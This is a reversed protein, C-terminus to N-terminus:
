HYPSWRSRCEKGVRREESRVAASASFDENGSMDYNYVTIAHRLMLKFIFTFLNMKGDTPTVPHYLGSNAEDTLKVERYIDRRWVVDEQMKPQVPFAIQSRTTVNASKSASAKAEAQELRKPSQSRFLTTYPFLTSRPPRRIM